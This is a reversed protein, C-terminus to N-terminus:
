EDVINDIEFGLYTNDLLYQEDMQYFLERAEEDTDVDISVSGELKFDIRKM